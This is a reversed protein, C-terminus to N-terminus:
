RTAQSISRKAKDSLQTDIFAELREPDPEVRQAEELVEWSSYDNPDSFVILGVGHSRAVDRVAQIDEELAGARESPVDLVVYSHTAARRHALAEYVALVDIADVPKVEFTIIELVKQPLFQFTRVSVWVLDPRSWRGGTARAGQHATIEIELPKVRRDRSWDGRLVDAIPDYLEAERRLVDVAIQGQTTDDETVPITVTEVEPTEVVRSLTGGRGRGRKVLGKDELSDRITWYEDGRDLQEQLKLQGVTGGDDPLLDFLEQQQESLDGVNM